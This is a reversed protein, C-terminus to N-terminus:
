RVTVEVRRNRPEAVEDATPVLPNDEGHSEVEIISADVGKSVLLSKIALARNLGLRYNQQRSGKRDTNGVISLETSQREKITLLIEAVLKESDATLHASASQFYLVYRVPPDPLAALAPGFTKAVRAPETEVPTSPATGADTIETTQGPQTLVQSGGQNSVVVEGTKGDPDSQLVVMNKTTSACASCLLLIGSGTLVLLLAKM